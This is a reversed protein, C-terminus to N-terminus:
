ALLSGGRLISVRLGLGWFVGSKWGSVGDDLGEDGEEEGGVEEEEEGADGKVGKV